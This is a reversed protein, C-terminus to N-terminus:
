VGMINQKNALLTVWQHNVDTASQGATISNGFAVSSYMKNVDALKTIEANSLKINWLAFHSLYGNFFYQAASNGISTTSTQLAGAGWGSYDVPGIVRAGNVYFHLKNDTKSWTMSMSFWDDILFGLTALIQSYQTTVGNHVNSMQLYTNTANIQIYNTASYYFKAIVKPNNSGGWPTVTSKVWLILSGEDTNFASILSASLPNLYANVGNFRVSKEGTKFGVQNLTCAAFAGNRGNGSYDLATTGTADNLPLYQILHTPQTALVVRMYDTTDCYVAICAVVLLMIIKKVVEGMVIGRKM